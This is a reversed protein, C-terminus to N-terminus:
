PPQCPQNRRSSFGDGQGTGAELPQGCKQSTARGGDKSGVTVLETRRMIGVRQNQSKQKGGGWQIDERRPYMPGGPYDPIIEKSLIVQNAVKDIRLRIGGKDRLTAYECTRSLLVLVSKWIGKVRTQFFFFIMPLLSEVLM